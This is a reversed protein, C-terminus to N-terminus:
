LEVGGTLDATRAGGVGRGSKSDGLIDGGSAGGSVGVIGLEGQGDGDGAGVAALEGVRELWYETKAGPRTGRCIRYGGFNRGMVARTAWMLRQLRAHDSNCRAFLGSMEECTEAVPVLASMAVRGQGHREAWARVFARWREEESNSNDTLARKNARFGEVGAVDLIGGMVQSWEEFGGLPAGRERPMGEAVWAQVVTLCASVLRQRNTRAWGRLDAERIDDRDQPRECQPELRILISREAIESSLSPNNGTAAWSCSNPLEIMDQTKLLRFSAPNSTLCLALDPSDVERKESLNDILVAQPSTLLATALRKGWEDPDKAPAAIKVADAGTSVVACANALLTKGSRAQPATILHLPTVAHVSMAPRVLPLLMLALTHAKSSGDDDAFRFDGLFDGFIVGLAAAVDERMPAAPVSPVLGGLDMWAGISQHYGDTALLRGGPGFCPSRLITHLTPLPWGPMALIESCIEKPTDVTRETGEATAKTFRLRAGLEKRLSDTNLPDITPRGVGDIQRTEALRVVQRGRVYLVPPKQAALWEVVRETRTHLDGGLSLVDRADRERGDGSSGGGDGGAGSDEEGPLPLPAALEPLSELAARLGDDGVIRHLDDVDSKAPLEAAREWGSIDLAVVAGAIRGKRKLARLVKHAGERGKDDNDYCVAVDVGLGALTDIERPTFGEGAACCVAMVGSQYAAWVSPEGNVVYLRGPDRGEERAKALLARAAELGYWHARGRAGGEGKAWGCKVEDGQPRDLFRVRKAGISTNCLLAPRRRRSRPDNWGRAVCGWPGELLARDLHRERCFAVFAQEPTLMSAGDRGGGLTVGAIAALERLADKFDGGRQTIWLDFVDKSGCGAHCYMYEDHVTCSPNNEAHWPCCINDGVRGSFEIGLHALVRPVDARQKIESIVRDNGPATM